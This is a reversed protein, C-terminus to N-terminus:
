QHCVFAAEMSLRCNQQLSEADGKALGEVRWQLYRVAHSFLHLGEAKCVLGQVRFCSQAMWTLGRLQSSKGLDWSQPIAPTSLTELRWVNLWHWVLCSVRKALM